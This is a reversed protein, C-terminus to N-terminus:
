TGHIDTLQDFKAQFGRLTETSKNGIEHAFSYAETKTM